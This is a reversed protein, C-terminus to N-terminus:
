TLFQLCSRASAFAKRYSSLFTELSSPFTVISCSRKQQRVQKVINDRIDRQAYVATDMSIMKVHEMIKARFVLASM